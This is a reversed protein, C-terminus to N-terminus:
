TPFTPKLPEGTIVTVYFSYALKLTEPDPLAAQEREEKILM